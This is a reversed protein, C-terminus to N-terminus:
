APCSSSSEGPEESVPETQADPGAPDGPPTEPAQTTSIFMVAGATSGPHRARHERSNLQILYQSEDCSNTLSRCLAEVGVGAKGLMLVRLFAKMRASAEYMDQHSLSKSKLTPEGHSYFDRTNIWARPVAADEGLVYAAVQPDLRAVLDALRQAERWM